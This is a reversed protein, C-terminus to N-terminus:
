PLVPGGPPGSSCRGRSRARPAANRLAAVLPADCRLVPGDPVCLLRPLLLCAGPPRAGARARFGRRARRAVGVLRPRPTGPARVPLRPVAAPGRAGSGCRLPEATRAAARRGRGGDGGGL